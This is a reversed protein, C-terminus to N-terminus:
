DHDVKVLVKMGVYEETLKNIEDIVKRIPVGSTGLKSAGLSASSINGARVKLHVIM